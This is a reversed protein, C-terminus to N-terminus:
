VYRMAEVPQLRVAKFAPYVAGLAAFLPVMVFSNLFTSASFRPYIRSGVGMSHLADSFIALDLGQQDFPLHALWAIGAGVATGILGMTFAEALIMRFIQGRKMGVAMFVGIEHVREFVAMLMTNVIGFFMALGVILYFIWILEAYSEMQLILLPLLDRYSAAEVGAPMIERIRPMYAAVSDPNDVLAVIQASRPGTELMTRFDGINLYVHTKDFQSDFTRFLGGIRFASSGMEGSSRSAMAVVKDGVGVELKEALEASILIEGENTGLYSGETVSRAITTIRQESEPEIGVLNVGSSARSSSLLGFFLLRQSSAAVFPLADLRRQLEDPEDILSDLSPNDRFGDAHIQLHGVHAGIRNDLMQHMMGISFADSLVLALVGVAVSVLIILTRRPNRWLNRWALTLLM